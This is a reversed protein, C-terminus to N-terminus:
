QLVKGGAAPDYPRRSPLFAANLLESVVSLNRERQQEKEDQPKEIQAIQGVSDVEMEEGRAKREAKKTEKKKRAEEPLPVSGEEAWELFPGKVREYM